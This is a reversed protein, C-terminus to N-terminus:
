LLWLLTLLWIQTHNNCVLLLWLLLIPAHNEPNTTHSLVKIHETKVVVRVMAVLSKVAAPVVIIALTCNRTQSHIILIKAQIVVPMWQGKITCKYDYVESQVRTITCKYDYVESQVRRITCQYDYVQSQVRTITCKYDYVQLQVRTITSKYNYVQLQVRTITSKYNYM